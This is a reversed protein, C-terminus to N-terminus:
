SGFISPSILSTSSTQTSVTWNPTIFLVRGPKSRLCVFINTYTEYCRKPLVILCVLVMTYCFIFIEFPFFFFSFSNFCFILVLTKNWMNQEVYTEESWLYHTSISWSTLSSMGNNFCINVCWILLYIKTYIRYLSPVFDTHYLVELITDKCVEILFLNGM